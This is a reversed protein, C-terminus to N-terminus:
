GLKKAVVAGIAVLIFLITQYVVIMGLEITKVDMLFLIFSVLGSGIMVFYFAWMFYNKLVSITREDIDPINGNRKRRWNSASYGIFAGAIMTGAIAFVLGVDFEGIEKTIIVKAILVSAGIMVGLVVGAFIKLKKLDSM